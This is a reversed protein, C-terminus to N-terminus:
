LNAELELGIRAVAIRRELLQSREDRDLDPRHDLVTSSIVSRVALHTVWGALVDSPEPHVGEDALGELYADLLVAAVRPADDPDARGTDFRGALLQALDAGLPGPSGYSWDIAVIGAPTRLLNDPTADGHSMSHPLQEAASIRM